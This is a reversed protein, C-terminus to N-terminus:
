AQMLIRVSYATCLDSWVEFGLRPLADTAWSQRKEQEKM